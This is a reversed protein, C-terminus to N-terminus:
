VHRDSANWKNRLACCSIDCVGSNRDGYQMKSEVGRRQLRDDDEVNANFHFIVRNMRIPVPMARAPNLLLWAVKILFSNLGM